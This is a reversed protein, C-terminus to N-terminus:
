LVEPYPAIDDTGSSARGGQDRCIEGQKPKGRFAPSSWPFLSAVKHCEHFRTHIPGHQEQLAGPHSLCDYYYRIQPPHPARTTHLFVTKTVPIERVGDPNLPM